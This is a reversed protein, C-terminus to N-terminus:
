RSKCVAKLQNKNIECTDFRSVGVSSNWFGRDVFGFLRQPITMMSRSQSDVFVIKGNDMREWNFMHGHDGKSITVSGVGKETKPCLKNIAAEVVAQTQGQIHAGRTVRMYNEGPTMSGKFIANVESETRGVADPLAEVDLGMRRLAYTMSCNTCNMARDDDKANPNVAMMDDKITSSGSKVKFGLSEVDTKKSEVNYATKGEKSAHVKETLGYTFGGFKREAASHAGAKLPYPPGNRQGWKQGKIGHHALYDM